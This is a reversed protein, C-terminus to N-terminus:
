PSKRRRLDVVVGRHDSGLGPGVTRQAVVFHGSALVHDLTIMGTWAFSFSDPWPGNLIDPWTGLLAAPGGAEATDRLGGHRM